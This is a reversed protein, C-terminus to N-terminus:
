DEDNLSDASGTSPMSSRSDNRALKGEKATQVVTVTGNEVMWKENCVEAVFGPHHSIVLIAGKFKQLALTLANLTENDLYNTPEDLAILHPKTWIAAALVLRCKQGGSMGKIRGSQALRHSIGFDALHKLIEKETCPRVEMGSAFAQIKEDYNLVLKMVYPDKRKLSGIPEWFTDKEYGTRRTEYSLEGGRVARSMIECINGRKESLVVEEPTLTYMQRKSLEKDQGTVFRDQVYAVPTQRLHEELHHM